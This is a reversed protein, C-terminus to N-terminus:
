MESLFHLWDDSLGSEKWKRFIANKRSEPLKKAEQIIKQFSDTDKSNEYIKSLLIYTDSIDSGISVAYEFIKQAAKDHGAKFYCNGYAHLLTILRLYNEDYESLLNFNAIGYKLKLDTNTYRCLNVCKKDSLSLLQPLIEKVEPVASFFDAPNKGSLLTLPFFEEAPFQLFELDDMPQKRTTNAQYEKEWFSAEQKKGIKKSKRLNHHLVLLFLLVSALFPFKM